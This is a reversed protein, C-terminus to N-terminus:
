DTTARSVSCDEADDSEVAPLSRNTVAAAIDAMTRVRVDNRSRKMAVYDLIQEMRDFYREGALDHPHLWMHFVDGDEVASDIGRKTLTVVPDESVSLLGSWPKGRFGGLFFSAPINVLGYEDVYPTVTPPAFVGTLGGLIMQLGRVGPVVQLTDPHVGRYSDFGHEAIVDLHAVRNRPFVFSRLDYGNEQGVVRALECEAAAVDRAIESFVAHSYSHSAIEHDVTASAVDDILEPALWEEPRKKRNRDATTFWDGSYPYAARYEPDDTLLHGVIAWTAPVRYEEFLRLLRAWRERARSYRDRQDESLPHLDHSGWALEADVSFVICGTM